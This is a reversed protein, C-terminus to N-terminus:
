FDEIRNKRGKVSRRELRLRARVDEATSNKHQQTEQSGKRDRGGKIEGGKITPDVSFIRGQADLRHQPIHNRQSARQHRKKIVNSM